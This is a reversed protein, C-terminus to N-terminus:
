QLWGQAGKPWSKVTRGMDRYARRVMAKVYAPIREPHDYAVLGSDPYCIPWETLYRWGEAMVAGDSRATVTHPLGKRRYVRV